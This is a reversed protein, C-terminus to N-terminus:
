VGNFFKVVKDALDYEFAAFWIAYFLLSFLLNLGFLCYKEKKSPFINQKNNSLFKFLLLYITSYINFIMAGLFVISVSDMNFKFFFSIIHTMIFIIYSIFSGIIWYVISRNKLLIKNIKPIFTTLIFPLIAPIVLWLMALSYLFAILIAKPLIILLDTINM